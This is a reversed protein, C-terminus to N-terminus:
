PLCKLLYNRVGGSLMEYNIIHEQKISLITKNAPRQEFDVMERLNQTEGAVTLGSEHVDRSFPFNYNIILKGDRDKKMDSPKGRKSASAKWRGGSYM